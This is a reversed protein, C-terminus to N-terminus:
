QNGTLLGYSATNLQYNSNQIERRGSFYKGWYNRNHNTKMHCSRCLTILNNLSCNKKNYDIHHVDKGYKGCINCKFNYKKRIEVRLSETWDLSYPYFSSGNNWNYHNSGTIMLNKKGLWYRPSRESCKKRFKESRKAGKSWTNKGIMVVKLTESLRRRHEKTFPHPYKWRKGLTSCNGKKGKKALSQKIRTEKSVFHGMLTKSIKQKIEESCAKRKYIGTPM